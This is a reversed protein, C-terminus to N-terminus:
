RSVLQTLRTIMVAIASATSLDHARSKHQVLLNLWDRVAARERPPIREALGEADTTTPIGLSPIFMLMRLGVDKGHTACFEEFPAGSLMLKDSLSSPPPQTTASQEVAPKPSKPKKPKRQPRAAGTQSNQKIIAELQQKFEDFTLGPASGADAFEGKEVFDENEAFDAFDDFGFPGHHENRDLWVAMESYEPAEHPILSLARNWTHSTTQDDRRLRAIAGFHYWPRWDRADRKRWRDFLAELSTWRMVLRRRHRCLLRHLREHDKLLQNLQSPKLYASAMCALMDLAEDQGLPPLDGAKAKNAVLLIATAMPGAWRAQVTAISLNGTALGHVALDVDDGLIGSLQTFEDRIQRKARLEFRAAALYVPLLEPACAPEAILAAFCTKRRESAHSELGLVDIKIRTWALNGAYAADCRNLLPRLSKLDSCLESRERDPLASLTRFRLLLVEAPLTEPAVRGLDAHLMDLHQVCWPVPWEATVRDVVQRAQAADRQQLDRQLRWTGPIPARLTTFALLLRKLVDTQLSPHLRAAEQWLTVARQDGHTAAETWRVDGLHLALWAKSEAQAKPWGEYARQLPGSTTCRLHESLKASGHENRQRTVQHLM